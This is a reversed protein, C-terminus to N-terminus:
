ETNFYKYRYRRPMSCYCALSEPLDKSTSQQRKIFNNDQINELSLDIM